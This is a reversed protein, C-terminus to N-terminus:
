SRHWPVSLFMHPTHTNWSCLLHSNIKSYYNFTLTIPKQSPKNFRPMSYLLFVLKFHIFFIPSAQLRTNSTGPTMELHLLFECAYLVRLEPFLDPHHYPNPHMNVDNGDKYFLCIYLIVDGVKGQSFAQYFLTMFSKHDMLESVVLIQSRTAGSQLFSRLFVLSKLRDFDITM